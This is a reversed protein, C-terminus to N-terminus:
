TFLLLLPKKTERPSIASTICQHKTMVAYPKHILTKSPIQQNYQNYM